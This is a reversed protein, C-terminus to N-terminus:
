GRGSSGCSSSEFISGPEADSYVRRSEVGSLYDVVWDVAKYANKRVTEPDWHLEESPSTMDAEIENLLSARIPIWCHNQRWSSKTFFRSAQPDASCVIDHNVPNALSGHTFNLPLSGHRISRCEGVGHFDPIMQFEVNSTLFVGFPFDRHRDVIVVQIVM